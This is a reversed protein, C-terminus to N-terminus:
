LPEDENRSILLYLQKRLQEMANINTEHNIQQTLNIETNNPEHSRSEVYEKMKQSAQAFTSGRIDGLMGLYGLLLTSHLTKELNTRAQRLVRNYSGRTRGKAKQRVLAKQSRPMRIEPDRYTLHDILLAELQIETFFSKELLLKCLPDQFLSSIKEQISEADDSDQM